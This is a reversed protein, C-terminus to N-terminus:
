RVTPVFGNEALILLTAGGVSLFYQKLHCSLTKRCPCVATLYTAYALLLTVPRQCQRQMTLKCYHSSFIGTQPRCRLGRQMIQTIVIPLGFSLAIM